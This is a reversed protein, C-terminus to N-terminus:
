YSGSVAGIALSIVSGFPLHEAALRLSFRENPIKAAHVRGVLALVVGDPRRALAETWAAVM